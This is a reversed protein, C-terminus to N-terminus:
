MDAKWRRLSSITRVTGATNASTASLYADSLTLPLRHTPPHWRNHCCGHQRRQHTRLQRRAQGAVAMVGRMAEEDRGGNDCYRKTTGCCNGGM